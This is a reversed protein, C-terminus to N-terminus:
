QEEKIIEFDSEGCEFCELDDLDMSQSRLSRWADFLTDACNHCPIVISIKKEM